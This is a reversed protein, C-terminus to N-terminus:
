SEDLIGGDKRCKELVKGRQEAQGYRENAHVEAV